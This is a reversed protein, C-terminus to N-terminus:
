EAELDVVLGHPLSIRPLLNFDFGERDGCLIEESQTRYSNLANILPSFDIEWPNQTPGLFKALSDGSLKMVGRPNSNLVHYLAAAGQIVAQYFLKTSGVEELWLHELIEHTEWYYRRNFYSIAKLFNPHLLPYKTPTERSPQSLLTVLLPLCSAGCPGQSAHTAAQVKPLTSSPNERLWEEIDLKSVNNCFCALSKAECDSENSM